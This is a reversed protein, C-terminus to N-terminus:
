FNESNEVEVGEPSIFHSHLNYCLIDQVFFNEIRITLFCLFSYILFADNPVETALFVGRERYNSMGSPYMESLLLLCQGVWGLVFNKSWSEAKGLSHVECMNFFGNVYTGIQSLRTRTSCVLDMFCFLPCFLCTGIECSIGTRFANM